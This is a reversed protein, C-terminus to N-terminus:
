EIASSLHGIYVHIFGCVLPAVIVTASVTFVHSAEMNHTVSM